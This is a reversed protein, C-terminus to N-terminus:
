PKSKNETTKSMKVNLIDLAKRLRYKVTSLATESVFATDRLSLGQYYHLHIVQRQEENLGDVLKYLRQADQKEAANEVPGPRTDERCGDWWDSVTTPLTRRRMRDIFVHYAVRHVWTKFSCRGEYRGLTDWVKAYTEQTLDEADARDECLRYLYNFVAEYSALVLQEAAQRDGRRALWFDKNVKFIV